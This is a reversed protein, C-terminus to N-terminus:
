GKDAYSTVPVADLPVRVGTDGLVLRTAEAGADAVAAVVEDGQGAPAEVVVEDHQFFVLQAQWGDVPALEGLRRRVGAVLVAAWDAASAQVVFNRTFRGRARTRAGAAQDPLGDLWGTEAPPCVRGLVSRVSGGDEGTRAARELLALAGPFRRKLAALAPSGAGGGYMAALLAVKAEARAEPRGLAQAALEAYLDGARTAAVMGPDRSMAALVRPELQGADAVVLVRGEVARVAGRVAKPIQLAGGGRTAWRGTIVGAPVYEPRFRGERVWAEQWAWGNATWLRALGKYRRLLPVVPHDYRDLEWKGTSTVPLGARRLSRLLDVPSDPNVGPDELTLSVQAALEQLLAPRATGSPRPGLLGALIRHHVVVDWPLGAAAMEAAALTGASEAACLLALGPAGDPAAALQTLRALQDRHVAVPDPGRLDPGARDSEALDAADGNPETLDPGTPDAGTASARSPPGALDDFLSPQVADAPDAAPDALDPGAHARWDDWRQEQALLLRETHGLDHCRAVRVGLGLLQPYLAATAPWVWRPRSAAEREAVAAAVAAVDALLQGAGAPSGGEDVPQLRWGGDPCPWLVVRSGAAARPPGSVPPM